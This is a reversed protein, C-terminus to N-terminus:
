NLTILSDNEVLIKEGDVLGKKIVVYDGVSVGLTVERERPQEGEFVFVINRGNKNAVASRPIQIKAKHNATDTITDKFTVKASMDPKLFKDPNHVRVKIPVVNKQRDAMPSIEIVEGQYTRGPFSDPNILAPKGLTIKELDDENIDIEVNMVHLDALTVVASGSKGEMTKMPFLMEGLDAIKDIVTGSIPARITAENLRITALDVKKECIELESKARDLELRAIVLNKEEDDLQSPSILNGKFLERRRQLEIVDKQYLEQKHKLNLKAKELNAEAEEMQVRLEENDLTALIDGKAVEDGERVPLTVIRGAVKSSVTIESEAVIYGGATMSAPTIAPPQTHVTIISFKRSSVFFDKFIFLTIVAIVIILFLLLLGRKRRSNRYTGSHDIKLKELEKQVTDDM